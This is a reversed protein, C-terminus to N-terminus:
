QGRQQRWTTVLLAQYTELWEWLGNLSSLKGPVSNFDEFWAEVSGDSACLGDERMGERRSVNRGAEFELQEALATLFAFTGVEVGHEHAFRAAVPEYRTRQESMEREFREGDNEFRYTGWDDGSQIHSGIARLLDEASGDHDRLAEYTSLSVYPTEALDNLLDTLSRIRCERHPPGGEQDRESRFVNISAGPYRDVLTRVIELAQVQESQSLQDSVILAPLSAVSM